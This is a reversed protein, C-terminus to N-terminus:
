CFDEIKMFYVLKSFNKSLIKMFLFINVNQVLFNILVCTIVINVQLKFRVKKPNGTNAWFRGKEPSHLIYAFICCVLISTVHWLNPMKKKNPNIQCYEELWLVYLLTPEFDYSSVSYLMINRM